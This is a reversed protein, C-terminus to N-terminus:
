TVLGMHTIAKGIECLGQGYFIFNIKTIDM